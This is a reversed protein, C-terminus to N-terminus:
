HWREPWWVASERSIHSSETCKLYRRSFKKPKITYLPWRPIKNFQANIWTTQHPVRPEANRATEWTVGFNISWAHHTQILGAGLEIDDNVNAAGCIYEAKPVDLM